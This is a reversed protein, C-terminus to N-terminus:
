STCWCRRRTARPRWAPLTTAARTGHSTGCRRRPLLPPVPRAPSHCPLRRRAPPPSSAPRAPPDSLLQLPGRVEFKHQLAVSGDEQREWPVLGGEKSGGSSCAALAQETAAAQEETGRGSALLLVRRGAAAAVLALAPNPCWAVCSCRLAHAPLTCPSPPPACPSRGRLQRGADASSHRHLAALGVQSARGGGVDAHLARDPGGVPARHRGRRGVAAVPRQRRAGRQARGGHAGPVASCRLPPQPRCALRAPAKLASCPLPAASTPASCLCHCPPAGSLLTPFPQLDRPKPLQPM